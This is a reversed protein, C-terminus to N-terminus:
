EEEAIRNWHVNQISHSEEACVWQMTGDIELKQCNYDEWFTPFQQCQEYTEQRIALTVERVVIRTNAALVVYLAVLFAVLFVAAMVAIKLAEIGKKM